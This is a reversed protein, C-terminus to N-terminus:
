EDKKGKLTEYVSKVDIFKDFYEILNIAEDIRKQLEDREAKMNECDTFFETAQERERMVEQKLADVEAQRSAAGAEYGMKSAKSPSEWFLKDQSAKGFWADFGQTM